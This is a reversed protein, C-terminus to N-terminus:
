FCHPRNLFRRQANRARECAFADIKVAVLVIEWGGNIVEQQVRLRWQGTRVRWERVEPEIIGDGLKRKKSEPAAAAEMKQKADQMAAAADASKGDLVLDTNLGDIEFRVKSGDLPTVPAIADVKGAILQLLASMRPRTSGHFTAQHTSLSLVTPDSGIELILEYATGEDAFPRAYHVWREHHHNSSGGVLSIGSPKVDELRLLIESCQRDHNYSIDHAILKQELGKLHFYRCDRLLEARHAEDKIQLPYGRLLHLLQAFVEASRSPM